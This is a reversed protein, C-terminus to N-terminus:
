GGSDRCSGCVRVKLQNGVSQNLRFSYAVYRGHHALSVPISMEKEGRFVLPCGRPSKEVRLEDGDCSLLSRLKELLLVRVSASQGAYGAGDIAAVGSWVSGFRQMRASSPPFIIPLTVTSRSYFIGPDSHVIAQYFAAGSADPSFADITGSARDPSDLQRVVMKTPSFVLGPELRQRYKYASEKISWLLWVFHEFPLGSSGQLPYLAQESPVLIKSYFRPQITRQRDIADLSVIDNGTSIM